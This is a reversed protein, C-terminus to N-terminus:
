LICVPLPDADALGSLIFNEEESEGSQFLMWWMASGLSSCHDPAATLAAFSAEAPMSSFGLLTEVAPSGGIALPSIAKECKGENPSSWINVWLVVASLIVLLVNVISHTMMTSSPPAERSMPRQAEGEGQRLTEQKVQGDLAKTLAPELYYIIGTYLVGALFYDLALAPLVINFLWIHGGMGIMMILQCSLANVVLIAVARIAYHKIQQWPSLM